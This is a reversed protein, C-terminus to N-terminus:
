QLSESKKGFPKLSFIVKGIVDEKYNIMGVAPNRSDKSINRNDGMVFIYGEPIEYDMNANGTMDELIYPEDLKEGNIYVVNDKIQLKDGPTGIVRKILITDIDREQVIVIDKYEPVSNNYALNYVLLKDNNHINPLMSEGDVNAITFTRKFIFVLAILFIIYLVTSITSKHKKYFDM